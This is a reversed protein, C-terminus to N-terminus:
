GVTTSNKMRYVARVKGKEGGIRGALGGLGVSADGGDVAIAEVQVEYPVTDDYSLADYASDDPFADM